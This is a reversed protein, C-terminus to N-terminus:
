KLEKKFTTELYKGETILRLIGINDFGEKKPEQDKDNLFKEARTLLKKVRNEKNKDKENKFEKAKQIFPNIKKVYEELTKQNDEFEKQEYLYNTYMNKLDKFTTVFNDNNYDKKAILKEFNDVAKKLDNLFSNFRIKELRIYM